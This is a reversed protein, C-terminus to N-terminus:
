KGSSHFRQVNCCSSPESRLALCPCAVALKQQKTIIGSESTKNEAANFVTFRVHLQICLLHLPVNIMQTSQYLAKTYSLALEFYTLKVICLKQHKCWASTNTIIHLSIQKAELM